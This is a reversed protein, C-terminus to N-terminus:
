KRILGETESYRADATVKSVRPCWPAPLGASPADVQRRDLPMGAAPQREPDLAFVHDEREPGIVLAAALPLVAPLPHGSQDRQALFQKVAIEARQVKAAQHIRDTLDIRLQHPAWTL